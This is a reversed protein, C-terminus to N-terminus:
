SFINEITCEKPDKDDRFRKFFFHRLTHVDNNKQMGSLEVVEGVYKTHGHIAFESQLDETLGSSVSGIPVIQGDADYAGVNMSTKWGYFYPKTVAVTRFFPGKILIPKDVLQYDKWVGDVKREIAWYNWLHNDNPGGDHANLNLKGNYYKTPEGFGLCIADCTATQKIKITDWAPRKGPTYPATKKKLVVGEEGNALAQNIFDELNDDVREALEIYVEGNVTFDSLFYKKYVEQLLRYRVGAGVDLLSHGKFYIMDHIYYHLYGYEGQQREIAKEPLSGMIPTVDESRKGPYYIEGIIITGAPLHEFAQMIHPVNASKESLTGTTVSKNRSFLYNAEKTTELQYWYGDKKLQGFYEGSECLSPLVHEKGKPIHNIKMPEIILADNYM